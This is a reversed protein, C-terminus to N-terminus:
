QELCSFRFDDDLGIPLVLTSFQMQKAQQCLKTRAAKDKMYQDQYEVHLVAKGQDIFPKLRHCENYQFCEENIAFDFDHVLDKVQDVDNKLAISLGRAHAEAALFRNYKLQDDYTLPFGTQNIYGDINDPEVADCGKKVALDLRNQMVSKVNDSRIDLWREGEWGELAKGLTSEEFTLVDPRWDEYSGASFYCVIKKGKAQLAQIQKQSVNFLDIDYIDVNYSTNVEGELQWQWTSSVPPQYIKKVEQSAKSPQTDSCAVLGLVCLGLIFQRM